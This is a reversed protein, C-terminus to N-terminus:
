PERQGRKFWFGGPYYDKTSGAKIIPFPEIRLIGQRSTEVGGLGENRADKEEGRVFSGKVFISKTWAMKFENRGPTLTGPSKGLREEGGRAGM